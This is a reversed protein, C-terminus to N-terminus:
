SFWDGFNLQASNSQGKGYISFNQQVINAHNEEVPIIEVNAQSLTQYLRDHGQNGLRAYVVVACEILTGASIKINDVTSLINYAEGAEPEDLLMVMIVSTDVIM